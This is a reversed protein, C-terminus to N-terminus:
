PSGKPGELAARLYKSEREIHNALAVIWIGAFVSVLIDMVTEASSLPPNARRFSIALLQGALIILPIPPSYPVFGVEVNSGCEQSGLSSILLLPIAPNRSGRTKPLRTCAPLPGPNKLLAASDGAAKQWVYYDSLAADLDLGDRLLLRERRAAPFRWLLSPFKSACALLLQAALATPIAYVLWPATNTM